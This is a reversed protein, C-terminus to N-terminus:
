YTADYKRTENNYALSKFGPYLLALRQQVATKVGEAFGNHYFGHEHEMFEPFPDLGGSEEWYEFAYDFGAQWGAALQAKEFPDTTAEGKFTISIIEKKPADKQPSLIKNILDNVWKM